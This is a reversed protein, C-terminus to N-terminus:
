KRLRIDKGILPIIDYSSKVRSSIRESYIDRIHEMNLNTSIITALRKQLRHNILFFLNSNTLSNNLESGLDDIVLLECEMLKEYLNKMNADGRIQAKAMADFLEIATLYIVSHNKEMVAKAICNCLFTKGVGTNGTFLVNERHRRVGAAPKKDGGNDQAGDSVQSAALTVTGPATGGTEKGEAAAQSVAATCAGNETGGSEKGVSAKQQLTERDGAPDMGFDDAYERCYRVVRAMHEPESYVSPDLAAFNESELLKDIHSQAYLLKIERAKLCHCKQGGAYGTDRCDACVYRPEMYDAPFGAAELLEEKEKRLKEYAEAPDGGRRVLQLAISGRSEDLERIRPIGAYVEEVRADREARSIRQLEGYERM